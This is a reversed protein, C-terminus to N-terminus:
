EAPDAKKQYVLSDPASKRVLGKRIAAADPEPNTVTTDSFTGPENEDTDSEDTESEMEYSDVSILTEAFDTIWGDLVGHMEIKFIAVTLEVNNNGNEDDNRHPWNFEEACLQFLRRAINQLAGEDDM